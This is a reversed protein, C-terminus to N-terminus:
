QPEPPPLKACTRLVIERRWAEPVRREGLIEDCAESVYRALDVDRLATSTRTRVEALIVRFDSM